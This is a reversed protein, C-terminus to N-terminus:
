DKWIPAPRAARPQSLSIRDSMPVERFATNQIPLPQKGPHNSGEGWTM